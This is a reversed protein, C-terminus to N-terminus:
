DAATGNCIAIAHGRDRAGIKAFATNIYSKVTAVSLHLAAAIEPNSRGVTMQALVDIERPTLAPFREGVPAPPAFSRALLAGVEGSFTSQGAVTTRIAAAIDSRRSGKVLYGRAGAALARAISADDAYTTLVLVPIAPLERDLLATAAVGDLVPMRLDILVIDPRTERALEVARRGDAATGVVTIDPMLSLVTSLGDRVDDQDDAILVRIPETM